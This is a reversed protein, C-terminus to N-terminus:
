SAVTVSVTGAAANTSHVDIAAQGGQHYATYSNGATTVYGNLTTTGVTTSYWWPTPWTGQYPFYWYVPSASKRAVEAKLLRICDEAAADEGHDNWDLGCMSCITKVVVAHPKQPKQSKM